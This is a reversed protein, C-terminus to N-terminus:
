GETQRKNTDMTDTYSELKPYTKEDKEQFERALIEKGMTEILCRGGTRLSTYMNTLVKRDDDYDEFYGFSGFMNIVVDYSNPECYERMDGVVFEGNLENEEAKQKAKDIFHSTRDVGVVDFDRRSFELSHRGIGCCLDLIRDNTKIKLLKVVKKVEEKANLQRDETFLFPEFSNGSNIKIM